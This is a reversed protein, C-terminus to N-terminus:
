EDSQYGQPTCNALPSDPNIGPNKVAQGVSQIAATARLTRTITPKVYAIM